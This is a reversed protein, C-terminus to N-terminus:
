GLMKYFSLGYGPAQPPVRVWPLEPKRFRRQRRQLWVPSVPALLPFRVGTHLKSSEREVM